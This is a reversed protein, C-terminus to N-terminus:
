ADTVRRNAKMVFNTIPSIDCLISFIILQRVANGAAEELRERDDGLLADVTVLETCIRRFAQEQTPWELGYV